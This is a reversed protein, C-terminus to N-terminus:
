LDNQIQMFINKICLLEFKYLIYQFIYIKSELEINIYKIPIIYKRLFNKCEMLKLQIKKSIRKVIMM